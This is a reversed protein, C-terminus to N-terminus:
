MEITNMMDFMPLVMAIVIFGVVVAMVVIMLPELLKTFQELATEVEEDYFNATKELIEDLSGSEEGIKIMSTAMPPFVGINKIPTALDIGKRVEEKAKLIGKEVIINGVIKSVIELSQILPVGSSLLTSLTRTFRSTIIKQNLGKVIPIRFKIIGLFSKGRDSKMYKIIGYIIVTLTLLHIYWYNKIIESIFLLIRTPLPLQVGSSEFMGVFTPMVFTLLFVIVGVAVISLIMPYAMAGKIKNNIKNEKEYHVAMREMIVDLNGSVEGAEIMNILLDPFIDKQKKLGESFTLGKQVDDHINGIIKAFKKNETQLRLIDLCNIITVGANLLTYFQRCFVAIDKTKIKRFMDSLRIEKSGIDEEVKTPYYNKQRLMLLVEEKSNATHKGEIKKGSKDIASYKYNPM